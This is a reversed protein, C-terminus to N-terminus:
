GSYTLDFVMETRCRHVGNLTLPRSVRRRGTRPRPNPEIATNHVSIGREPHHGKINRMSAHEIRTNVPQRPNFAWTAPAGPPGSGRSIGIGRISVFIPVRGPTVASGTRLSRGSRMTMFSPVFAGVELHIDIVPKEGASLTLGKRVARKFGPAEASLEYEGPALFPISYAGTEECLTTTKSGTRTETAVVVARPIAAGQPDSVMGSFTGLYEQALSGGVLLGGLVALRAIRM